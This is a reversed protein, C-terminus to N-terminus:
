TLLREERAAAAISISCFILAAMLFSATSFALVMWSGALLRGSVRSGRRWTTPLCTSPIPCLLRCLTVSSRVTESPGKPHSASSPTPDCNECRCRNSGSGDPTCGTNSFLTFCLAPRLPSPTM